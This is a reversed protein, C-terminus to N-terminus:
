HKQNKFSNKQWIKPGLLAASETGNYVTVTFQWIHRVNYHNVDKCVSMIIRTFVKCISNDKILFEDFNTKKFM